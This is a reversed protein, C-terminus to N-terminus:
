AAKRDLVVFAPQRTPDAPPAGPDQIPARNLDIIHEDGGEIPNLNEFARIENISYAGMRAMRDYYMSRAASDGRMFANINFEIFYKTPDDILDLTLRQQWVVVDPTMTFVLFGIQQQEIGTGWSTSKETDGIMHPPVHFAGALESRLFKRTELFQSDEPTMSVQKLTMGEELVAVRRQDKGRGYIQEFSESLTKAAEPGLTKPHELAVAPNGGKAFLLNAQEQAALSGGIAERLDQLATRGMRGDTSLGKLHLVERAPLDITQGNSRTFQYIRPGGFDDVPLNPDVSVQDPHMPILEAVMPRRTGPVEVINKWAYANGRLVRHAELMGFLEARTQWSNPKLLVRASPHTPAPVKTRDDIREYIGCPLSALGRSRLSVCTLVALVNFATTESVRTGALSDYGRGLSQWL